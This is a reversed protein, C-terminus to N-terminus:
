HTLSIVISIILFIFLLSTGHHNRRHKYLSAYQKYVKPCLDCNFLGPAQHKNVIHQKLTHQSAFNKGCTKCRFVTGFMCISVHQSLQASTSFSASKCNLCGYPKLNTHRTLHINHQTRNLFRQGCVPCQFKYMHKHHEKIHAKLAKQSTYRHNCNGENCLYPKDEHVSRYHQVMISRQSYERNCNIHTCKYQRKEGQCNEVHERYKMFESFEYHCQSCQFDGTMQANEEGDSVPRTANEDIDLMQSDHTNTEATDVVDQEPFLDVQTNVDSGDDSDSVHASLSLIQTTTENPLCYTTDPNITTNKLNDPAAHADVTATELKQTTSFQQTHVPSNSTVQLVNVSDTSLEKNTTDNGLSKPGYTKKM